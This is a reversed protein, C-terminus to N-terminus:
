VYPNVYLRDTAQRADVHGHDIRKTTEQDVRSQAALQLPCPEARKSISSGLQPGFAQHLMVVAEVAKRGPRPKVIWPRVRGIAGDLHLAQLDEVTLGARPVRRM